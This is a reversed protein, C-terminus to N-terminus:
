RLTSGDVIKVGRPPKFSFSRASVKANPEYSIIRVLRTVGNSEQAEFQRLMGDTADIWVKASTFRETGAKPTLTVMRTARGGITSAGGDRITYKQRPNTFFAGILDISGELDATLPARIVQGPTSSPLFLWVYKGDSLIVDGKPDSFRFAFKDPRSQEFEGRSELDSGTIPNRITQEFTARATRVGAYAKVARDIATEASSQATLPLAACLTLIALLRM